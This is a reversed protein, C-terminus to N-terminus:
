GVTKGSGSGNGGTPGSGNNTNAGYNAGNQYGGIGAGIGSFLNGLADFKVPSASINNLQSQAGLVVSNPDNTSQVGQLLSGRIANVQSRLDNAVGEGKLRIGAVANTNELDLKGKQLRSVSSDGLGADSLKYNLDGKAQRYQQDAQTLYHNTYADSREQYFAPDNWGKGFSKTGPKNLYFPQDPTAGIMKGKNKGTGKKGATYQIQNGNQDYYTMGELPKSVQSASFDGGDFMANVMKAAESARSQGQLDKDRQLQAQAEAKRAQEKNWEAQQLAIQNAMRAASDKAM